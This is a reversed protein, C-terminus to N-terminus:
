NEDIPLEPRKEPAADVPPKADTFPSRNARLNELIFNVEANDPNNKQIEEFQVTAEARRGLKEYSLGLFYRANAYDPVLEVARAFAQAAGGFDENNYKLLGLQFYLATNQPDIFSAAEVSEIAGRINNDAAELQALTFYADTYNTKMEIAKKIHERAGDTDGSLASLRAFALSIAPNSPARNQAETYAVRASDSAGEIGNGALVEYIRGLAFWNQYNKSNWAIAARTGEVSNAILGQIEAKQAETLKDVSEVSGIVGDIRSLAVESFGRWYVDTPALRLAAEPGSKGFSYAAVSREWVFYGLAISAILFVVILFVSAFNAKPNKFINVERSQVVGQSVLTGAFLGTFVFTLALVTLSPVYVFAMIWLFLSIFFSTSSVFRFRPDTGTAFIAKFGSYVYLVLFTLLALLGLPGTTAAVTPIFGSGFNFESAWFQTTNIDLPKKLDWLESFMNPGVGLVPNQKWANAVLSTTVEFSPRVEIDNLNAVRALFGSFAGGSLVLVVAMALVFLSPFSAKGKLQHEPTSESSGVSWSFTYVFYVLAFIGLVVIAPFFGAAGVFLMALVMLAYLFLRAKHSLAFMNLASLSAIVLVGLFIATDISGGLLFNPIRSAVAEPLITAGFIRVLLHLIVVISSLIFAYITKVGATAGSRVAFMVLFLLLSLILFSAATGLEFMHGVASKELQGSFFSSVFAIVPFLILPILFKSKPFVIIGSSLTMALFAGVFLVTVTALLTIKVAYLSVGIVPLFAIPLLFVLGLLCYEFVKNFNFRSSTQIQEEM